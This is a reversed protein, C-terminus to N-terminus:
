LSFNVQFCGHSKCPTTPLSNPANDSSKTSQIAFSGGGGGWVALELTNGGGGGGGGGWGGGGGGGGAEAFKPGHSGKGGEGSNFKLEVDGTNTWFSRKPPNDCENDGRGGAGGIGGFGDKGKTADDDACDICFSDGGSGLDGGHASDKSKESKGSADQSETAIALGGQGGSISGVTCDDNLSSCGAAGGGGGALMLIDPASPDDDQNLALNELTIITSAGGSSGNCFQPNEKNDTANQGDEGLFYYIQTTGFNMQFDNITTTTQTYGGKGGDSMQFVDKNGKIVNGLFTDGGKGGWAELWIITDTTFNSSPVKEQVETLIDNLDVGCTNDSLICSVRNEHETVQQCVQSINSCSSSEEPNGLTPGDADTNGNDNGCGGIMIFSIFFCVFILQITKFNSM